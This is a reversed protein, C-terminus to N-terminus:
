GKRPSRNGAAAGLEALKGDGFGLTERTPQYLFQLLTQRAEILVQLQMHRATGVTAALVPNGVDADLALLDFDVVAQDIGVIKAYPACQSQMLCRRPGHAVAAGRGFNRIRQLAQEVLIEVLAFGSLIQPAEERAVAVCLEALKKGPFHNRCHSTIQRLIQRLGRSSDTVLRNGMNRFSCPLRHRTTPAPFTPSGLISPRSSVPARMRTTAQCALGATCSHARAPLISSSSRAKVASSKRSTNRATTAVDDRANFSRM